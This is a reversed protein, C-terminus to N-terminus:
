VLQADVIGLTSPVRTGVETSASRPVVAVGCFPGISLSKPATLALSFYVLLCLLPQASQGIAGGLPSPVKGHFGQGIHQKGKKPM